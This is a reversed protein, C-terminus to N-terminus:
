EAGDTRAVELGVLNRRTLMDIYKLLAVESEKRSLKFESAVFAILDGVTHAGDVQGVVKTGIDDLLLEAVDSMAFLKRVWKAPRKGARKYVVLMQGSDLTKWNVRPNLRPTAALMAKRSLKGGRKGGRAMVM